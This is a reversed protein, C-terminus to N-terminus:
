WAGSVLLAPVLESRAQMAGATVMTRPRSSRAAVRISHVGEIGMGALYTLAGAAGLITGSAERPTFSFSASSPHPETVVLAMGVGFLAAGAIRIKTGTNWPDGAYLAGLTPAAAFLGIASWGVVHLATKTAGRAEFEYPDIAPLVALAAIPVAFSLVGALVPSRASDGESTADAAESSAAAPEPSADPTRDAWAVGGLACVAAVTIRM